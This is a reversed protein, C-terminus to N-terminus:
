FFRGEEGDANEAILLISCFAFDKVPQATFLHFDITEKWNMSILGLWWKNAKKSSYILTKLYRGSQSNPLVADKSMQLLDYFKHITWKFTMREM